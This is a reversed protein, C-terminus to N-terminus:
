EQVEDAISFGTIVKEVQFSYCTLWLDIGGAKWKAITDESPKGIKFPERQYVQLDLRGEEGCSDLLFDEDSIARFEAKLTDLLGRLSDSQLTLGDDWETKASGICGQDWNDIESHAIYGKIIYTTKM